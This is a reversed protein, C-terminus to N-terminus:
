SVPLRDNWAVYESLLPGLREPSSVRDLGDRIDIVAAFAEQADLAELIDEEENGTIRGDEMAALLLPRIVTKLHLRSRTTTRKVNM